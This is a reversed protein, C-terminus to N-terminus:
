LSAKLRKNAIMVFIMTTLSGKVKRTQFSSEVKSYKSTRLALTVKSRTRFRLMLLVAIWKNLKNPLSEQKCKNKTFNSTRSPSNTPMETMSIM